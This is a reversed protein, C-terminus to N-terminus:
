AARGEQKAFDTFVPIKDGEKLTVLAKKFDKRRGSHRRAARRAAGLRISRARKGKVSLTRLATVEVGYEAEVLKKVATKNLGKDIKFVYTNGDQALAFSKETLHPLLPSNM